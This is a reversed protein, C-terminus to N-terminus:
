DETPVLHDSPGRSPHPGALAAMYRSWGAILLLALVVYPACLVLGGYVPRSQVLTSAIFAVFVGIVLLYLLRRRSQLAFNLGLLIFGSVVAGPGVGPHKPYGHDLIANLWTSAAFGVLIWTVLRVPQPLPRRGPGKGILGIRVRTGHALLLLLDRVAPRGHDTSDLLTALIEEGRVTRYAEPYVRLWMRYRRQRDTM